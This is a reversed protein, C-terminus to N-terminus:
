AEGKKESISEQYSTSLQVWNEIGEGLGLTMAYILGEWGLPDNESKSLSLAMGLSLVFSANERDEQALYTLGIMGWLNSHGLLNDELIRNELGLLVERNSELEASLLEPNTAISTQAMLFYNPHGLLRVLEALEGYDGPEFTEHLKRAAGMWDQPEIFFEM